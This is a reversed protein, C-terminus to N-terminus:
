CQHQRLRFAMRADHLQQWGLSICPSRRGVPPGFSNLRRQAAGAGSSGPVGVAGPWGAGRIEVGRAPDRFGEFPQHLEVVGPAFGSLGRLPFLFQGRELLRDFRHLLLPPAATFGFRAANWLALPDSGSHCM